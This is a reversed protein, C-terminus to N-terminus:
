FVTSITIVRRSTSPFAINGGMSPTPETGSAIPPFLLPLGYVNPSATMEAASEPTRLLEAGTAEHRLQICNAGFGSLVAASYGGGNIRVAPLGHWLFSETKM